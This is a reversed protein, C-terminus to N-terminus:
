KKGKKDKRHKLHMGLAGAAAGGAGAAYHKKYSKAHHAVGRAFSDMKKGASEGWGACKEIGDSVVDVVDMKCLVEGALEEIGMESAKKEHRKKMAMAGAGLALGAAGAGYLGKKAKLHAGVHGAGAKMKGGAAKAKEAVYKGAGEAKEKVKKAAGTVYDKTKKWAGAKEEGEAVKELQDTYGAFIIAAAAQAQKHLEVEDEMDNLGLAVVGQEVAESIESEAQAFSEAAEKSLEGSGAELEYDATMAGFAYLADVLNEQAVEADLEAAAEKELEADFETDLIAQLEEESMNEMAAGLEQLNM